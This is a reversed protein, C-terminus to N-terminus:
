APREPLVIALRAPDEITRMDLYVADDKIRAIVPPRAHRLMAAIAKASLAPNTVRLARSVIPAAPM